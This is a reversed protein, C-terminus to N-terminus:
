NVGVVEGSRDNLMVKLITFRKIKNETVGVYDEYTYTPRPSVADDLLNHPM